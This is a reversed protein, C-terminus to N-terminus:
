SKGVLLGNNYDTDYRHGVWHKITLPAKFSVTPVNEFISFLYKHKSNLCTHYMM